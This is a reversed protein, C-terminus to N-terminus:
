LGHHHSQEHCFSNFRSIYIHWPPKPDSNGETEYTESCKTNQAAGFGVLGKNDAGQSVAICLELETVRKQPSFGM